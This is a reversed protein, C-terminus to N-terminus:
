TRTTDTAQAAIQLNILTQREASGSASLAIQQLCRRRRQQQRQQHQLLKVCQFRFTLLVCLRQASLCLRRRTENQQQMWSPSVTRFQSVLPWVATAIAAVEQPEDRSHQQQQQQQPEERQQKIPCCKSCTYKGSVQVYARVAHLSPNAPAPLPPAPAAREGQQCQPVHLEDNLLKTQM